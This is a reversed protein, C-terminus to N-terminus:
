AFWFSLCSHEVMSGHKQTPAMGCVLQVRVCYCVLRPALPKPVRTGSNKV